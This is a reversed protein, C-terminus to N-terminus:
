SKIDASEAAARDARRLRISFRSGEGPASEIDLAGRCRRVIHKVIALGLGAGGVRRSRARDVRYFRETLRPIHEAAIGPGEDSVSITVADGDAAAEVTVAGGAAGYKVANDILNQVALSIEEADGLAPPLAAPLRVDIRM